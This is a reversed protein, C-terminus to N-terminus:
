AYASPIGPPMAPHEEVAWRGAPRPVREVLGEDDRPDADELDRVPPPKKVPHGDFGGRVHQLVPGRVGSLVRGHPLGGEDEDPRDAREAGAQLSHARKPVPGRRNRAQDARVGRHPPDRCHAVLRRLREQRRIPEQAQPGGERASPERRRGHLRPIRPFFLLGDLLAGDGGDRRRHRRARGGGGRALRRLARLGGRLQQVFAAQVGRRGLRRHRRNRPRGKRYGCGCLDHSSRESRHRSKQRACKPGCEGSLSAFDHGQAM